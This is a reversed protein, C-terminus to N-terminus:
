WMPYIDKKQEDESIRRSSVRRNRLFVFGIFLAGAAILVWHYWQM